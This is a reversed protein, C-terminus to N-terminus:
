QRPPLSLQCIVAHWGSRDMIVGSLDRNVVDCCRLPAGGPPRRRGGPWCKLVQKQIHNDPMRWIHGLWQLRRQDEVSLERTKQLIEANRMNWRTVELIDRLYRM